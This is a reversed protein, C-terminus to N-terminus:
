VFIFSLHSSDDRVYIGEDSNSFIAHIRMKEREPDLNSQGFFVSGAQLRCTDGRRLNMRKMEKGGDTWRLKGTGSDLIFYFCKRKFFCIAPYPEEPGLVM